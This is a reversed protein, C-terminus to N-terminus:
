ENLCHHTHRMSGPNALVGGPKALLVEIERSSCLAEVFAVGDPKLRHYKLKVALCWGKLFAVGGPKLRHYKLKVALSWREWLYSVM